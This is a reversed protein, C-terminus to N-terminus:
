DEFVENTNTNVRNTRWGLKVVNGISKGKPTDLGREVARKERRRVVRKDIARNEKKTKM